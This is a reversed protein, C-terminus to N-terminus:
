RASKEERIEDIRSVFWNAFSDAPEIARRQMAIFVHRQAVDNRRRLKIWDKATVVIPVDPAFGTWLNGATLPDHDSKAVGEVLDVGGRRLDEFFSQPSGIACLANARRPAEVARGEANLWDFPEKTVQFEGPLVISARRRNWRGERYPGAPLCMRNGPAPEDLVISLDIHLPLHQFGDDMILTSEPFREEAIQAALPRRRGVIIPVDPALWRIMAPEDGWESPDLPGEPALMAAESRPGGYGSCSVVVSRGSGILLEVLHLTIPSKGSGGTTLNGVCVVPIRARYARKLGVRYIALYAEWGIAYLGSLPALALRALVASPRDSRLIEDAHM